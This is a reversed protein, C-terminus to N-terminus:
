RSGVVLNGVFQASCPRDVLAVRRAAEFLRGQSHQRVPDDSSGCKGWSPTRCRAPHKVLLNELRGVKGVYGLVMIPPTSRKCASNNGNGCAGGGM